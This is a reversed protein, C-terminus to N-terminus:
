GPLQPDVWDAPPTWTAWSPDWWQGDSTLRDTLREIEGRIWDVLEASYRGEAARQDLLEMDKLQWSGDAFVILDAELDM